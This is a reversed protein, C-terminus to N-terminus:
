RVRLGVRAPARGHTGHAPTSLEWKVMKLFPSIRKYVLFVLVSNLSGKVLNFPLIAELLLRRSTETDAAPMFAAMFLPLVVLNAALMVVTSVVVGIALSVVARAKTKHLAYFSGCAFAFSAGALFNMPAGVMTEPSGKLLILLVNKLFAVWVGHWPGLAFAGILVPIDGMDYKLFPASVLFPVELLSMLTIGVASLISIRIMDRVLLMARPSRTATEFEERV